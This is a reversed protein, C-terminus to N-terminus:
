NSPPLTAKLAADVLGYALVAPWGLFAGVCEFEGFRFNVEGRCHGILEQCPRYAVVAGIWYLVFSAPVWWLALNFFAMVLGLGITFLVPLAICGRATNDM